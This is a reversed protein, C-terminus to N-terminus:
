RRVGRPKTTARPRGTKEAALQQWRSAWIGGQRYSMMAGYGILLAAVITWLSTGGAVIEVAVVILALPCLWIAYRMWHARRRRRLIEDVELEDDDLLQLRLEEWTRARTKRGFDNPM